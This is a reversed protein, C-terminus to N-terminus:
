QVFWATYILWGAVFGTIVNLLSGILSTHYYAKGAIKDSWPIHHSLIKLTLWGGLFAGFTRAMGLASLVPEENFMLLTLSGFVALEIIAVTKTIFGLEETREGILNAQELSERSEGSTNRQEIFKKIKGQWSRMFIPIGIRSVVVTLLALITLVLQYSTEGM